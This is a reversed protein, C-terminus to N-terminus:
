IGGLFVLFLFRTVHYYACFECQLDDIFLVAGKKLRSCVARMLRRIAYKMRNVAERGGGTAAARDKNGGQEQQWSNSSLDRKDEDFFLGGCGRMASAIMDADDEGLEKRVEARIESADPLGGVHRALGALAQAFASYPLPGGGGGNNNNLDFKGSAFAIRRRRAPRELGGSVLASKDVGSAGAVLIIERGSEYINALRDGLLAVDDERGHLRLDSVRLQVLGSDSVCRRILERRSSQSADKVARGLEEFTDSRVSGGSGGM